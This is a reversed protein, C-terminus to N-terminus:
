LEANTLCPLPCHLYSKHSICLPHWCNQEVSILVSHSQSSKGRLCIATSDKSRVMLVHSFLKNTPIWHTEIKKECGCKMISWLNCLHYEARDGWLLFARTNPNRTGTAAKLCSSQCIDWTMWTPRPWVHECCCCFSWFMWHLPPGQTSCCSAPCSTIRGRHFGHTKTGPVDVGFETRLTSLEWIESDKLNSTKM